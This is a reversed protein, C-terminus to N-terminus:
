DHIDRRDVKLLRIRGPRGRVASLCGGRRGIPARGEVVLRTCANVYDADEKTLVHRGRKTLEVIAQAVGRCRRLETSPQRAKLSDGCMRRLMTMETREMQSELEATM